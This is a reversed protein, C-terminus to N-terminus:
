DELAIRRCTKLAADYAADAKLSESNNQTNEAELQIMAQDIEDKLTELIDLQEQRRGVNKAHEIDIDCQELQISLDIIRHRIRGTKDLALLRDQHADLLAHEAEILTM